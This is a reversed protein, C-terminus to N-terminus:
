PRRLKKIYNFFVNRYNKTFLYIIGISIIRSLGEKITAVDSFEMYPINMIFRVTKSLSYFVFGFISIIMLAIYAVRLFSYVSIFITKFDLVFKKQEAFPDKKVFLGFITNNSKEMLDPISLLDSLIWYGDFKLFPVLNIIMIVTNTFMLNYSVNYIFSESDVFHSTIFLAINLFLQIYIGGLNMKVKNKKSVKWADTLDAYMVPMITYFGLGIGRPFVGSKISAAAHGIEHIFIILMLGIYYIPLYQIELLSGGKSFVNLQSLFIVNIILLTFFLPYFINGYLFAVPSSLKKTWEADLIEFKLWYNKKKEKTDEQKQEFVPIINTNIVKNLEDLSLEPRNLKTHIEHISDSSKGLLLIKYLLNEIKFYKDRYSLVYENQSPTYLEYNFNLLRNEM